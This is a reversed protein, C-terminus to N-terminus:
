SKKIVIITTTCLPPPAAAIYFNSYFLNKNINGWGQMLAM